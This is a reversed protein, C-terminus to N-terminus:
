RVLNSIAYLPYVEIDQFQSFNELSTRVGRKLKKETMFTRISQMAGQTGAKVEVPLILEGQQVIYDVQANGTKKERAWCYLQKPDYCSEGKLLELGTFIEALAGRNITKFDDSILIQAADLNLLRLFLGTDFLIMRRYKPNIEAGLPIGNAATHTVPYVLGAMILLELAQKVQSNNAGIAAHEYVFKGEAQRVVSEFVESIRLAPVKKKYKAFDDRFSIILDNLVRQCSLLDKTQVYESVAEPMGGIILFVKLRNIIKKHIVESLPRQPTAKRFADVLSNEGLANLFEEFSFPYMFISRERGVGISPIEEIAFEILSGAAIVHLESYKEYFYRLKSMAPLCTQIEDFFLLTEGPVIPTQFFLSLQECVEQPSLTQEFLQHLQKQEDFNVEVFHNFSEGLHRVASSKGVQRAGRLLLTKRNREKSWTLLERDIDRNYYIADM